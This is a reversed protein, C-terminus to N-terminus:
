NENIKENENEEKGISKNRHKRNRKRPGDTFLVIMIIAAIPVAAFPAAVATEIQTADATVRITESDDVDEVRKGRVLLRQTNIGYPTCTVLTCYDEGDIIQLDKIDEPEVIKIQDVEYTLSNGLTYLTFTDGEELKDLASFLKASPLGRHALLVCHTSEGGIPLSSGEMHGVGVQLVEDGTGHYIPLHCNISPIDIYSMLGDESIKLMSNYETDKEENTGFDIGTEAIKENYAAAEDLMSEYEDNSMNAVTETYSSIARSQIRTNIYNSVAPYLLLSLGLFLMILLILTSLKKKM